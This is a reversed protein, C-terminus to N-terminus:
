EYPMATGFQWYLPWRVQGLQTNVDVWTVDPATGADMIVSELDKKIGARLKAIVQDDILGSVKTWTYENM